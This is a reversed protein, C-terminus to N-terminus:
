HHSAQPFGIWGRPMSPWYSLSAVFWFVRMWQAPPVSGWFGLLFPPVQSFALPATPHEESSGEQPPDAKVPLDGLTAQSSTLALTVTSPLETEMTVEARIGVGAAEPGKGAPEDPSHVNGPM